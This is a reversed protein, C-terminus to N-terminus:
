SPKTVAQDLAAFSGNIVPDYYSVYAAEVKLTDAAARAPASGYVVPYLRLWDM